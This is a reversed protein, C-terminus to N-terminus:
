SGGNGEPDCARAEVPVTEIELVEECAGGELVDARLAVAGKFVVVIFSVGSCDDGL